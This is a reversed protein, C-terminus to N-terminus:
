EAMPTCLELLLGAPCRVYSVQQGWPKTQPAKLESAGHEIALRHTKALDDCVLAIEIGLPQDSQGASVFGRPLNSYGLAVSAFALKTEGTALEGYDGEPTMFRRKLGFASEYFALAHDVSEVYAITYGFRM